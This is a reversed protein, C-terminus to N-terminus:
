PTVETMPPLEAGYPGCIILPGRARWFPEWVGTPLCGPAAWGDGIRQSIGGHRDRVWTGEPPEPPVPGPTDGLQFEHSCLPCKM